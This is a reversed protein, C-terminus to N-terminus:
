MCQYRKLNQNNADLHRKLSGADSASYDCLKCQFPKLGKHFAFVHQKLHGPQSTAYNCLKCQYPKLGKHTTDVHRKLRCTDSCAIQMNKVIHKWKLSNCWYTTEPVSPSAAYNCFNCQYPKLGKPTADVHKKLNDEQTSSYDFLKCIYPKLSRHVAVVHKKLNSFNTSSYVCLKCKCLTLKKLTKNKPWKLFFRKLNFNASGM